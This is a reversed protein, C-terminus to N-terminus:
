LSLSYQPDTLNSAKLFQDLGARKLTFQEEKRGGRIKRPNHQLRLTQWQLFRSPGPLPQFIPM